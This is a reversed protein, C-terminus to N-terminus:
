EAALGLATAWALVDARIIRAILACDEETFTLPPRLDLIASLVRDTQPMPEPAAYRWSTYRSTFGQPEPAGFWKLEVGRAACGAVVDRIADEPWDLLLFQISSAVFHEKSPRNILTVGPTRALGAEVVRYLANWRACRETLTRLQPRLIAARLNDMRGSINPTDLRIDEFM